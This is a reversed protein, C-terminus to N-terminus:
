PWFQSSTRPIVPIVTVRGCVGVRIVTVPAFVGL